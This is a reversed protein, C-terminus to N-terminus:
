ECDAASRVYNVEKKFQASDPQEGCKECTVVSWKFSWGPLGLKWEHGCKCKLM